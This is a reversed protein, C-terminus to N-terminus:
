LPTWGHMAEGELSSESLFEPGSGVTQTGVEQLLAVAECCRQRSDSSPRVRFQSRLWSFLKKKKKKKEGTVQHKNQSPFHYVTLEPHLWLNTRPRDLWKQHHSYFGPFSCLWSSLFGLGCPKTPKPNKGQGLHFIRACPMTYYLNLALFFSWPPDPDLLHASFLMLLPKHLLLLFWTSLPSLKCLYLLAPETLVEKKWKERDSDRSM